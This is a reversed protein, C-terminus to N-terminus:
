IRVAEVVHVFAYRAGKLVRMEREVTTSHTEVFRVVVVEAVRSGSSCVLGMSLTGVLVV